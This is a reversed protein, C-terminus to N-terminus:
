NRYYGDCRRNEYHQRKKFLSKLFDRVVCTELIRYLLFQPPKIGFLFGHITRELFNIKIVTSSLERFLIVVFKLIFIFRLSYSQKFLNITNTLFGINWM